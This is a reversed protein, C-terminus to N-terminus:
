RRTEAAARLGDMLEQLSRRYSDSVLHGDADFEKSAGAVLVEPGPIVWPRFPVMCLRLAYQARAGGARGAAASMTAVPKDSWPSGEVRSIWDLANKTVGSLSQNYEPTVLLVADAAAVQAALEQVKEPIGAGDELDGNYLPLDLDGDVFDAPGFLRAAELMLKRNTSGARLSGCMGLLTLAM